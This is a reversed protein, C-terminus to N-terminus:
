IKCTLSNLAFKRLNHSIVSGPLIVVNECLGLIVSLEKSSEVFESKIQRLFAEPLNSSLWLSDRGGIGNYIPYLWLPVM